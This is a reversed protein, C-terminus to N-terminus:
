GRAASVALMVDIELQSLKVGSVRQWADIQVWDVKGGTDIQNFIKM